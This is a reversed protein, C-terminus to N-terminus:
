DEEEEWCPCEPSKPDLAEECLTCWMHGCQYCRGVVVDDIEPDNECDGTDPSGCKPCDGVFLRNVFEEATGSQRMLEHLENLADEPDRRSDGSCKWREPTPEAQVEAECFECVQASNPIKERLELM